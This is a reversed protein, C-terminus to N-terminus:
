PTIGSDIVNVPLQTQRSILETLLSSNDPSLHQVVVYSAGSDARLARVFQSLAELGGASAGLAVLIGKSM